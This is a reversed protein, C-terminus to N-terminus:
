ALVLTFWMGRPNGSWWDRRMGISRTAYPM